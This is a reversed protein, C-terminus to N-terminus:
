TGEGESLSFLLYRSHAILEEAPLKAGDELWKFMMRIIGAAAAESKYMLLQKNRGRFAPKRKFQALIKGACLDIFYNGLLHLSSNGAMAKYLLVHEKNHSFLYALNIGFPYNEEDDSPTDILTEQFNINGILLQEKSEYHTYFTSRGVNARDIIEQITIEDYNKELVLEKLAESLQKKTRTTRRDEKIM